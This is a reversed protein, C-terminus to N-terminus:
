ETFRRTRHDREKVSKRLCWGVVAGALTGAVIPIVFIATWIAGAIPWINSQGILACFCAGVFAGAILGLAGVWFASRPWLALAFAFPCLLLWGFRYITEKPVTDPDNLTLFACVSIAGVLLAVTTVIAPQRTKM